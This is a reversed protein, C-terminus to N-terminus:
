LHIIKTYSTEKKVFHPLCIFEYLVLFQVLDTQYHIQIDKILQIIKIREHIRHASSRLFSTFDHMSCSICLIVVVFLYISELFAGFACCIKIRLVILKNGCIHGFPVILILGLSFFNLSFYM